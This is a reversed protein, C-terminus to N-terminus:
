RLLCCVHYSICIRRYKGRSVDIMCRVVDMLKQKPVYKGGEYAFRHSM